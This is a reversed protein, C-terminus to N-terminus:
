RNAVKASIAIEPPKQDNSRGPVAIVAAFNVGLIQSVAICKLPTEYRWLDGIRWITQNKELTSRWTVIHQPRNQRKRQCCSDHRGVRGCALRSYNHKTEISGRVLVASRHTEIGAM